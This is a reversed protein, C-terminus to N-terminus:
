RGPVPHGVVAGPILGKITMMSDDYLGSERESMQSPSQYKDRLHLVISLAEQEHQMLSDVRQVLTQLFADLGQRNSAAPPAAAQRVGGQPLPGVFDPQYATGQPVSFQRGGLERQYQSLIDPFSRAQVLQGESYTGDKQSVWEKTALDLIKKQGPETSYFDAIDSSSETEIVPAKWGQPIRWQSNKDRIWPTQVGTQRDPIWQIEQQFLQELSPQRGAVRLVEDIRQDFQQLQGQFEQERLVPRKRQDDMAKQRQFNIARIQSQSEPDLTQMIGSLERQRFEAQQRADLAVDRQQQMQQDFGFGEAGLQQRQQFGTQGLQQRQDFQIQAAQKNLGGQVQMRQMQQVAQFQAMRENSQRAFQAQKQAAQIQAQTNARSVAAQLNSRRAGEVLDLLSLQTSVRRNADSTALPNLGLRFAGEGGLQATRGTLLFSPQYQREIGM